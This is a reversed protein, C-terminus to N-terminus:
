RFTTLAHGLVSNGFHDELDRLVGALLHEADAGVLGLGFLKGQPQLDGTHGIPLVLVVHVELGDIVGARGVDDLAV